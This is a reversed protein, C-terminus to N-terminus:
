KLNPYLTPKKNNFFLWLGSMLIVLSVTFFVPIAWPEKRARSTKKVSDLDFYQYENDRLGYTEIKRFQYIKEMTSLPMEGKIKKKYDTTLIELKVSQGRVINPPHNTPLIYHLGNRGLDFKFKPYEKLEIEIYPNSKGKGSYKIELDRFVTGQITSLDALQIEAKKEFGNIASLTLFAGIIIAYIGSGRRSKYKKLADPHPLEEKGETLIAKFLDYDSEISSIAYLDDQTFVTFTYTDSSYRHWEREELYFQIEAIPIVKKIKGTFGHIILQKDKIFFKTRDFVSFVCFLGIFGVVAGAILAM